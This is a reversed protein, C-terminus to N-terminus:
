TRKNIPTVFIYFHRNKWYWYDKPMHHFYYKNEDKHWNIYRGLFYRETEWRWMMLEIKITILIEEINM